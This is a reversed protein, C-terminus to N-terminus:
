PREEALLDHLMARGRFLRQRVAVPTTDLAAAVGACDRGDLYYLTIVERYSEPLKQIAEHLQRFDAVDGGPAASPEAGLPETHKRRRHLDACQRRAIQLLWARARGPERLDSAHAVAKLFVAQVADEADHYNRTHALCVAFVARAHLRFLRDPAAAPQADPPQGTGLENSRIEGM